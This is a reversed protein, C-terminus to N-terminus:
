PVFLFWVLCVFRVVMVSCVPLSQSSLCLVHLVRKWIHTDGMHICACSDDTVHVRSDGIVVCEELTHNWVHLSPSAEGRSSQLASAGRCLEIGLDCHSGTERKLFGWGQAEGGGAHGNEGLAM